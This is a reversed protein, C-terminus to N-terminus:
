TLAKAKLLQPDYKLWSSHKFYSLSVSELLSSSSCAINYLTM